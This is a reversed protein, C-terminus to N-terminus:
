SYSDIHLRDICDAPPNHVRRVGCPFDHSGAYVGQEHNINSMYSRTALTTCGCDYLPLWGSYPQAGYRLRLALANCLM